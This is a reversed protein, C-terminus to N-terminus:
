ADRATAMAASRIGLGALAGDLTLRHDHLLPRGLHQRFPGGNGEAIDRLKNFAHASTAAGEVRM